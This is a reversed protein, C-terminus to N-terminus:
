CEARNLVCACVYLTHESLVLQNNTQGKGCRACLLVGKVPLILGLVAGLGAFKLVQLIM